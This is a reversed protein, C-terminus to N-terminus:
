FFSGDLPFIKGRLLTTSDTKGSSRGSKPGAAAAAAATSAPYGGGEDKIRCERHLFFPVSPTFTQLWASDLLENTDQQCITETRHESRCTDDCGSGHSGIFCNWDMENFIQLMLLVIITSIARLCRQKNSM